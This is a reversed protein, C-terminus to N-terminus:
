QKEKRMVNWNQEKNRYHEVFGVEELHDIGRLIAGGVWFIDDLVIIGGMRIKPAIRQIDRFGGECHGGDVHALDINTPFNVDDSKKKIIECLHAVGFAKLFAHFKKEILDHNLSGWWESNGPFEQESSIKADYPDIGIAKGTKNERLAWLM